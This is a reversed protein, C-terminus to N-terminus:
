YPWEFLRRGPFRCMTVLWASGVGGLATGLGVGLMLWATNGIYRWLVTDALHGWVEGAPRLVGSLVFVIPVSVLLAVALAFLSWGNLFKNKLITALTEVPHERDCLEDCM